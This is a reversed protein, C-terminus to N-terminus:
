CYLRKFFYTKLSSKFSNLSPSTRISAPLTNWTEAAAISFSRLGFETLSPPVIVDGAEASRLRRCAAVSCVPECMAAIYDPALSHRAKYVLLCSNSTSVNESRCGICDTAYSRLSTILNVYASSSDRQLTSCRNCVVHSLTLNVPWFHM